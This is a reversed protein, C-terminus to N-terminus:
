KRRSPDGRGGEAGGIRKGAESEAQLIGYVPRGVATEMERLIDLFAERRVASWETVGYRQEVTCFGDPLALSDCLQILRDYENWENRELFAALFEMEAATCDWTGAAIRFDKVPFTHSICIRAADDFSRERFFSYGDLAHRMGTKGARRGIDHICGLVFAPEPDLRPHLRAIAQAARAAVRSHRVWPGPNLTQAERLFDEAQRRTPINM